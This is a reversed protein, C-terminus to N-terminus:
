RNVWAEFAAIAVPETATFVIPPNSAALATVAASVATTAAPAAAWLVTTRKEYRPRVTITEEYDYFHVIASNYWTGDVIYSQGESYFDMCPQNQMTHVRLQARERNDSIEVRALGVPEAPNVKGKTFGITTFNETLNLEAVTRVQAIDDYIAALDADLGLVIFGDVKAADGATTLDVTEITATGAIFGARVARALSVVMENTVTVQSTVGGETMVNLTGNTVVTNVVTGSGGTTKIALMVFEKNGRRDMASNTTSIVKSRMNFRAILNQLVYDKVNTIGTIDVPTTFEEYIVDDNDGFERDKRVSNLRLYGGYTKGGTPTGFATFTETSLQGVSAATKTYDLIASHYIIDSEVLAKHGVEFPDVTHIASSKPTGQVLKVAKNTSTPAAAASVFTGMVPSGDLDYSMVAVQGNTINYATTAGVLAGTPTTSATAVLVTEMATQVKNTGKFNM